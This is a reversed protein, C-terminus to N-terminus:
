NGGRMRNIWSASMPEARGGACTWRGRGGNTNVVNMYNINNISQSALPRRHHNATKREDRGRQTV